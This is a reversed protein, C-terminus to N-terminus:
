VDGRWGGRVCAYVPLWARMWAVVCSLMLIRFFRVREKEGCCSMVVGGCAGYLVVADGCIKMWYMSCVDCGDLDGSVREDGSSWGLSVKM